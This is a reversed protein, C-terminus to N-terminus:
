RKLHYVRNKILGSLTTIDNKLFPTNSMLLMPYSVKVDRYCPQRYTVDLLQYGQREYFGIRRVAYSDDPPEVELIIAGLKGYHELVAAGYSKGRLQPDIAFHEIFFSSEIQWWILFGIYGDSSYILDLHMDEEKPLLELLSSWERREYLPFADEYLKQIFNLAPDHSTLVRHFQM